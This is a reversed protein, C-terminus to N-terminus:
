DFPQRFFRLASADLQLEAPAELIQACIAGSQDDFTVARATTRLFDLSLSHNAAVAGHAAHRLRRAPRALFGNRQHLCNDVQGLIHRVVRHSNPEDWIVSGVKIPQDGIGFLTTDQPKDAFRRLASALMQFAEHLLPMEFGLGELACSNREVFFPNRHFPLNLALGYIEHAVRCSLDFDGGYAADYRSETSRQSHGFRDGIASCAALETAQPKLQVYM